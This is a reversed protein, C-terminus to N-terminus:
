SEGPRRRGAARGGRAAGGGRRGPPAQHQGPRPGHRGARRGSAGACCVAMRRGARLCAHVRSSPPRDSLVGVLRDSSQDAQGSVRSERGLGLEREQGGVVARCGVGGEGNRSALSDLCPGARGVESFDRGTRGSTGWSDGPVGAAQMPELGPAASRGVPKIGPPVAEIGLYAKMARMEDQLASVSPELAAAGGANHSQTARLLHTFTPSFPTKGTPLAPNSHPHHPATACRQTHGAPWPRAVYVEAASGGGGHGAGTRHRQPEQRQGDGALRLSCGIETSDFRM